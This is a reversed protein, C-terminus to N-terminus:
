GNGLLAKITNRYKADDEPSLSSEDHGGEMELVTALRGCEKVAEMQIAPPVLSDKRSIIFLTNTKIRQCNKLTDLEVTVERDYIWTGITALAPFRQLAPRLPVVNKLITLEPQVHSSVTVAGITGVSKGTVLLRIGKFEKQIFTSIGLCAHAYTQFDATGSSNGYGPPNITWVQAKKLNLRDVPDLTALEARGRSGLFRFVVLEPDTIATGSSDYDEVYFELTGKNYPILVQRKKTPIAHRTPRFLFRSLICFSKNM